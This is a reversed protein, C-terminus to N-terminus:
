HGLYHIMREKTIYNEKTDNSGGREKSGEEEEEEEEESRCTNRGSPPPAHVLNRAGLLV